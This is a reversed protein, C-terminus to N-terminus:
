KSLNRSIHPIVNIEVLHRISESDGKQNYNIFYTCEKNFLPKFIDVIEDRKIIQNETIHLHINKLLNIEKHNLSIVILKDNYADVTLLSNEKYEGNLLCPKKGYGNVFRNREFDNLASLKACSNPDKLCTRIIGYPDKYKEIFNLFEKLKGKEQIKILLERIEEVENANIYPTLSRLFPYYIAKTSWDPPSDKNSDSPYNIVVYVFLGFFLLQILFDILTFYIIPDDSNHKNFIM